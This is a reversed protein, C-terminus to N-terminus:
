IAKSENKNVGMAYQLIDEETIEQNELEIVKRGERMVVIRDSLGLVEPLESSVIILSKGQEILEELVRYIETKAGVDVGKTPEDLILIDADSSLWKSIVIKQQNGGSLNNTMYYPDKPTLNIEKIYYNANDIKKKHDIVGLRTYKDLNSVGVNDANNFYKIFGQTKRNEPILGIGLKVAHRPSTIKVEKGKIKITGSSLKEAGFITRVVDTRKAGVLGAFGLIEGKRLNFTVDEFVGNLTLNNAELIVENSVTKKKTRVAFSSVDRGVMKHILKEKSVDAVQFTDIFTGDRLVTARDCIEYIEELRHSVYLITVGKDRLDNIIRFLSKIENTTLSASPEDFSIVEAKHYLAKAIAIMQMEGTSLSSVMDESKFNCKLDTLIKNAQKHLTKYDIFIGKKPEYGLVINQGVTLEPILSVEQHVKSIGKQIADNANKFEIPTGNLHVEGEYESYVGHLINLLTSKGAGNEGLLAHIEGKKINFNINDLAKVGPFIKSINKFEIINDNQNVM